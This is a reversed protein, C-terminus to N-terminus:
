EDVTEAIMKLLQVRHGERLSGGLRLRLERRIFPEYPEPIQAAGPQARLSQALRNPRINLMTTRCRLFVNEMGARIQPLVNAMNGFMDRSRRADEGLRYIEFAIDMLMHRRVDEKLKELQAQSLRDKGRHMRVFHRICQEELRRLFRRGPDGRPLDLTYDSVIRMSQLAPRFRRQLGRAHAAFTEEAVAAVRERQAPSPCPRRLTVDIIDADAIALRTEATIAMRNPNEQARMTTRSVREILSLFESARQQPTPQQTM